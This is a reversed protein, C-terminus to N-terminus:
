TQPSIALFIPFYLMKTRASVAVISEVAKRMRQKAFTSVANELYGTGPDVPFPM